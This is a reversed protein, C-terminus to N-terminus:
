TENYMHITNLIYPIFLLYIFLRPVFEQCLEKSIGWSSFFSKSKLVRLLTKELHGSIFFNFSFTKFSPAFNGQSAGSHFCFFKSKLVWPLTGILDGRTQPFFNCAKAEWCSQFDEEQTSYYVRSFIKELTFFYENGSEKGM